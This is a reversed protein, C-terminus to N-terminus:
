PVCLKWYLNLLQFPHGSQAPLGIFWKLLSTNNEFFYLFLITYKNLKQTALVSILASYSMEKAYGDEGFLDNWAFTSYLFPTKEFESILKPETMNFMQDVDRKAKTAAV